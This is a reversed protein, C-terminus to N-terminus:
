DKSSSLTVAVRHALRRRLALIRRALATPVIQEHSYGSHNSAGMGVGVIKM